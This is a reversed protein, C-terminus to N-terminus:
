FEKDLVKAVKQIVESRESLTFNIHAFFDLPMLDRVISLISTGVSVYRNDNQSWDHTFVLKSDHGMRKIIDRLVSRELSQADDVIIFTRVFTRGRLYTVPQVDIDSLHRLVVDSSTSRSNSARDLQDVNDWIAQTWPKMKENLDGPLIGVEQGGVAEMSRFVIIRDFDGDRVQQMGAALSLYTKGGGAVGGLSVISIRPNMLYNLAITQDINGPRPGTGNARIQSNIEEIFGDEYLEYGPEKNGNIAIRLAANAPVKYGNKECISEIVEDLNDTDEENIDFWGTFPRFSDDSYPETKIREKSALLRTTPSNSVLTLNSGKANLSKAVKIIADSSSRNQRYGSEGRLQSSNDVIRLTNGGDIDIGHPTFIDEPYAATERWKEIATLTERCAWGIGGSPDSRHNELDNITSFAIIINSDRYTNFPDTGVGMFVSSDILLSPHDYDDDVFNGENDTKYDISDDIFQNTSM